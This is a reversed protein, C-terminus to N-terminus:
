LLTNLYSLVSECVKMDERYPGGSVGIGGVLEGDIIIPYGGGFITLRPTHTIGHLLAPEDKIHDYWEHTARNFQVASFAKNQAIDISNLKAGDMSRFAKLNGAVDVIAISFSIGIENAVSVAKDLLTEALKLNISRTSVLYEHMLLLGSEIIKTHKYKVM